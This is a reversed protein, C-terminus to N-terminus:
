VAVVTIQLSRVDLDATGGINELTMSLTDNTTMDFVANTALVSAEQSKVTDQIRTREALPLGNLAVSIEALTNSGLVTSSVNVLVKSDFTADYRLVGNSQQSFREANSTTTSVDAITAEAGSGVVTEDGSGDYDLSATAGSDELPYSSRVRFRLSEVSAQGTLINDMQVTPDHTTGRYQFVEDIVANQDVRIVETDPQVGKIYCDTIDVIDTQFNEDFELITVDPESVTRFPSESFFIKDPTGTFTLGADFDEFNCGKFSPVRYGDITGLNAINGLEAADSITVSEVLMEADNASLDLATGFPAHLYLDSAMFPVNTAQIAPGGGTCIFGAQAGHWGLLPSPDGLELSAPDAIFDTFMYATSDELQRVGNEAAPLDDPSRILALNPLGSASMGLAHQADIFKSGDGVFVEDTSADKVVRGDTPALSTPDSEIEINDALLEVITQLMLNGDTSPVLRRQDDSM